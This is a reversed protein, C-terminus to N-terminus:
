ERLGENGLVGSVDRVEYLTIGNEELIKEFSEPPKRLYEPLQEWSLGSLYETYWNKVVYVKDNSDFDHKEVDAFSLLHLGKTDFGAFYECFNRQVTSGILVSNQPYTAIIKSFTAKQGAYGLSRTYGIYQVPQVCWIGILIVFAIPAFYRLDSTIILSRVVVLVLFPLYTLQWHEHQQTYAILTFVISLLLIPLWYDRDYFFRYVVPAAVVAFLPYLYLYHRLDPCMPNYSTPSITMFYASLFALLTVSVWFHYPKEMCLLTRFPTVVIAVLALMLPIAGSQIFIFLLEYSIRKLLHNIPLQNYSCLNFYSNAAIAEFRHFVSGTQWYIFAFYLALLGMGFAISNKWFQFLQRRSVDLVFIVLFVPLLLVITGKSIFGLFLAAVFGLAYWSTKDGTESFRAKYLFTLAALVALGVYIDIMIKDAYFVVWKHLSYGLLTLAMLWMTARRNGKFAVGSGQWIKPSRVLYWLLLLTIFTIGWSPLASAFDNVGFLKYTLATPLLLTWRYSFHDGNDLQFTGDAMQKALGAYQMDDYGYHGFYGIVHYLLIFGMIFIPLVLTQDKWLSPAQKM